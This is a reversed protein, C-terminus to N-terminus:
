ARRARRAASFVAAAILVDAFAGIGFAVLIGPAAAPFMTRAVDAAGTAIGWFAGLVGIALAAPDSGGLELAALAVVLLAAALLAWLARAKAPRTPLAMAVQRSVSCARAEAFDCSCLSSSLNVERRYRRRCEECGALHSRVAREREPVLVGDALEFIREPDCGSM